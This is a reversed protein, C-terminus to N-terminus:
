SVLIRFIINSFSKANCKITHAVSLKVPKVIEGLEDEDQDHQVLLIMQNYKGSCLRFIIFVVFCVILNGWNSNAIHDSIEFNLKKNRKIFCKRIVPKWDESLYTSDQSTDEMSGVSAVMVFPRNMILLLKPLSVLLTKDIFPQYFPIQSM